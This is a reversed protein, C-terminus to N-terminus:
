RRGVRRVLATVAFSVALLLGGLTLALEFEGKGVELAIATTMVRTLGRINGGLILAVGLEGLARNFGILVVTLLAPLGESLLTARAQSPTAGLTLATEWVEGGLERLTSATLSAVLPTVLVAQGLIIATPTYLLHLLGFPGQRSLILYLILGVVVTPVGVMANLASLLLSRARGGGVALWVGAPLSWSSALLTASGSVLLSRAVIEAVELWLATM